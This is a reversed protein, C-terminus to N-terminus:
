FKWWFDQEGNYTMQRWKHVCWMKYVYQEYLHVYNGMRVDIGAYMQWTM